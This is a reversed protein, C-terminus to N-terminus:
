LYARGTPAGATPARRLLLSAPWSPQRRTVLNMGTAAPRGAALEEAPPHPALSWTLRVRGM